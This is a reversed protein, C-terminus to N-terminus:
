SLSKELIIEGQLNIVIITNKMKKAQLLTRDALAYCQNFDKVEPGFIVGGVSFGVEIGTPKNLLTFEEKLKAFIGALDEASKIEPFFFGFEDGGLRGILDSSRMRRFIAQGVSKLIEDGVVHGFRDNIGKFGDLDLFCFAANHERESSNEIWNKMEEVFFSRNLLGTLADKEAMKKLSVHHLFNDRNLKELAYAVSMGIINASILFFNNNIFVYGPLPNIFLSIIEFGLIILLLNLSSYIFRLGVFAYNFILVLMLGQSYLYQAPPAILALMALIGAGAVLIIVSAAKQYYWYFGPLFSLALIILIFPDVLGFRILWIKKWLSGVIVSDLVAFISYLFLGLGLALRFRKLNRRHFDELFKEELERNQFSLTLLHYPTRM